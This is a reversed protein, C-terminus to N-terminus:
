KRAVILSGSRSVPIERIDKFGADDLVGAFEAASRQRGNGISGKRMCVNWLATKLPGDRNVNCLLEYL